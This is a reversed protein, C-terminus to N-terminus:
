AATGAAVTGQGKRAFVAIVQRDEPAVKLFKIGMGPESFQGEEISSSFVVKAGIAIPRDDLKIAVNVISGVSLLAPTRVFMGDKTLISVPGESSGDQATVRAALSATIRCSRQQRRDLALALARSLGVAELPKGLLGAIIGRRVRGELMGNPAASLIILPIDMLDRDTRTRELIATGAQGADALVAAPPIARMIDLAQQAGAASIVAYGLKRLLACTSFRDDINEDAVLVLREYGDGSNM